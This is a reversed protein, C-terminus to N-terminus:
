HVTHHLAIVPRLGASQGTYPNFQIRQETPDQQCIPMYNVAAFMKRHFMVAYAVPVAQKASYLGSQGLVVHGFGCFFVMRDCIDPHFLDNNMATLQTHASAEAIPITMHPADTCDPFALDRKELSGNRKVFFFLRNEQVQQANCHNAFDKSVANFLSEECQLMNVRAPDNHFFLMNMNM